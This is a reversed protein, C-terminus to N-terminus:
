KVYMRWMGIDEFGARKYIAGAAPNDYFLCVSEKTALLDALLESLIATTYGKRRYDPLTAVGVVMASLSNEATSSAISVMKGDAKAFYTRGAKSEFKKQIQAARKELSPRESFETIQSEVTAIALADSAAARKVAIKSDHSNPQRCQAFYTDRAAFGLASLDAELGLVLDRSGSVGQFPYRKMIELFGDKDYGEGYVIFSEYYRLLAGKLAGKEDFDGWLEQFETEYGYAEIDGIIFLNISAEKKLYAFVLDHDEQTLKRIM